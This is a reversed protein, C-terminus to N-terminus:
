PEQVQANSVQSEEIEKKYAVLLCGESTLSKWSKAAQSESSHTVQLLFSDYGQIAAM